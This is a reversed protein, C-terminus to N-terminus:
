KEGGLAVGAPSKQGLTKEIQRDAESATRLNRNVVKGQADILFMTPLSGVGYEVALRGDIGGPEFIEPWDLKQEKQFAELDAKETDLSVGVIQLGKARYKEAVKLLDPIERRVSQGGWSAWFVVLVTKGQLQSTDVAEGQAGTGKISVSKGVLDLRRLAGAAKKGALSEPFAEVLKAYDERAKDEEANFENASGLQLWAEPAEDSKAFDKLFVELESMWKKQSTVYNGGPEESRMVFEAGIARFAAYSALPGKKEIIGDLVKRGQPYAGTQYAAVLSDVIQKNYSLQDDADKSAKVVGRLLPIRDVHFRAAEKKDAGAALASNAKDYDALTKLAAEMEADHQPADGVGAIEYIASRLGSSTAVVPKEPDVARPLEVFKWADDIKIMEPVQLFSLKAQQGGAAQAAPAGAFIVANEYLVLDKAVGTAPDAPIVHPLTGDFRNWVTKETWGVLTKLLAQVAEARKPADATVKAIVSDPVGAAKLEEPTAMLSDLLAADNTVLAQVAMKSAEEASIRKWAAIKGDQIAAIRTGGSNMWRCEDLSRDGNVDSERYVEFGDQFYSWQNLAKGGNTIIFRRLLKGQGDRLAYGITRKQADTVLEVKCADIAAQDAPTDYEVGGRTPRLNLMAKPTTDAAPASAAGASLCGLLAATYGLKRM